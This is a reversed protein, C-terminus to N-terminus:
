YSILLDPLKPIFFEPILLGSCNLVLWAMLYMILEEISNRLFFILYIYWCIHLYAKSSKLTFLKCLIFIRSNWLCRISSSHNRSITNDTITCFIYKKLVVVVLLFTKLYELILFVVLYLELLWHYIIGYINWFVNDCIYFVLILAFVMMTFVLIILYWSLFLYSITIEM